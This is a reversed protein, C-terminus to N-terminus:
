VTDPRLHKTWIEEGIIAIHSGTNQYDIAQQVNRAFDMDAWSESAMAGVVLYDLEPRVEPLPIGGRRSVARECAAQTGFLFTGTFCFSRGPIEVTDTEEAHTAAPTEPHPPTDRLTGDILATLTQKLHDREEETIVGDALVDQVRTYVVDGPWTAAIEKNDRLWQDLYRIEKDSLEQDAMIGSCIGWLAECSRGLLAADTAETKRNAGRADQSEANGMENEEYGQSYPGRNEVCVGSVGNHVSSAAHYCM